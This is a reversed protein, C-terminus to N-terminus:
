RRKIMWGLLVGLGFAIGLARAPQRVTYAEGLENMEGVRERAVEGFKQATKKLEAPQSVVESESDLVRDIMKPVKM